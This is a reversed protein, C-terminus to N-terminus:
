QPVKLNRASAATVDIGRGPRWVSIINVGGAVTEAQMRGAGFQRLKKIFALEGREEVGAREDLRDGARLILGAPQLRRLKKGVGVLHRLPLGGDGVLGREGAPAPAARVQQVRIARHGREVVGAVSLVSLLVLVGVVVLLVVAMGGM